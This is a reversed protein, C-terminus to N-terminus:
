GTGFRLHRREFDYEMGLRNLVDRGLLSDLEDLEPLPRAIYIATRFDRRVAGDFFSVVAPEVYYTQAGSISSVSAPNELRDFPCGIRDGDKPHLITTDSGTDVLFFIENAVGLRPLSVRTRIRPHGEATFYGAIVM